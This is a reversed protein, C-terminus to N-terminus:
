LICSNLNHRFHISTARNSEECSSIVIGVDQPNKKHSRSALPPLEGGAGPRHLRMARPLKIRLKVPRSPCQWHRQLLLGQLLRFVGSSCSGGRPRPPRRRTCGGAPGVPLQPLDKAHFPCSPSQQRPVLFSGAPVPSSSSVWNRAGPAPAPGPKPRNAGPRGRGWTVM